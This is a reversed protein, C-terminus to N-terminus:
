GTFPRVDALHSQLRVRALPRDGAAIADVIAGHADALPADPPVHHDAEIRRWTLRVLVAVLLHLVRNGSAEALRVHLDTTGRDVAGSSRDLDVADRLPGIAVDGRAFVGDLALLEVISRIEALDEASMALRDLHLAVADVVADVGPDVVVLGGGPGRRMEAVQLHELIRVAERLTARSVDFRAMLDAESGLSTGTPWGAAAVERVVDAAVREGLKPTDAAARPRDFFRDISPGSADLLAREADLHKRMRAGARDLDGDLVAAVIREHADASVALTATPFTTGLPLYLLTVRHLLDVFLEIAPNGSLRALLGHLLRHHIAEVGGSEAAILARLDAVGTEDLRRGALVTAATEIATRAAFVEDLGVGVHSLWVAVPETVSAPDPALVVLGGGPGRRMAAVHLHELLRVAERLVARGVGYRELLDGESGVVAGVPWGSATLDAVVREAVRRALKTGDSGAEIPQVVLAV